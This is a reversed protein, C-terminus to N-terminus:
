PAHTTALSAEAANAEADWGGGLAKYLAVMQTLQRIESQAVGDELAWAQRRADLVPFYDGIGGEYRSAALQESLRARRVAERATALRRGENGVGALASEVDELATLMAQEWRVVSQELEANRAEVQARLRGGNFLPLRIQPALAYLLGPGLSFSQSEEGVAALAGSIVFSPYLASRAVGVRANAADVAVMAQRVDPRRELLRSPLGPAPIAPAAPLEGSVALQLTVPARGSILALQNRSRAVAEALPPLGTELSALDARVAALESEAALGARVRDELLNVREREAAIQAELIASRRQAGRHEFWLRATEAALTVQLADANFSAAQAEAESAAVGAALGGFLDLEWRADFGSQYYSQQQDPIRFRGTQNDDRRLGGSAAADVSPQLAAESGRVAARLARIRLRAEALNRNHELTQQVLAELEPEDFNVWWQSLEPGPGTDSVQAEQWHDPVELAATPKEPVMSCGALGLAVALSLAHKM